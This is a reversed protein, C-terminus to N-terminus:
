FSGLPIPGPIPVALALRSLLVRPLGEPDVEIGTHVLRPFSGWVLFGDGTSRFHPAIVRSILGLPEM